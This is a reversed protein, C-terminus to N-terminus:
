LIIMSDEVGLPPLGREKFHSFFERFILSFYVKEIFKKYNKDTDFKYYKVNKLKKLLELDEYFISKKGGDSIVVQVGKLENVHFKM